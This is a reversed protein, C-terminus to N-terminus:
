IDKEFDEEQESEGSAKETTLMPTDEDSFEAKAELKAKGKPTAAKRPTAKTKTVRNKTPTVPLKVEDTTSKTPSAKATGFPLDYKKKLAAIRNTVSRPNSYNMASAVAASNISVVGGNTNKLCMILFEVDNSPMGSKSEMEKDEAQPAM